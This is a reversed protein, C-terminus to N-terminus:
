RKAGRPWPFFAPVRRTYEAWAAGRSRAMHAELPPIGSVHVLLLYMFVPGLWALWGWPAGLAFCPYALWHLWECLYNPHRSWAWLGLGCVGQGGQARFRQLQRDAVGEGLLAAAMVAVGLADWGDLPRPASAALAIPALLVAAALAQVQLFWFMRRQFAGGWERRFWAYRADEKAGVSRALIHLGLRLAWAAVLAAVLWRRAGVGHALAVGVGAAGLSFTWVVDVYGANGLRRQLWWGGAMALMLGLVAIM